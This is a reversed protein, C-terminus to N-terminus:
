KLCSERLHGGSPVLKLYHEVLFVLGCACLIEVEIAGQFSPSPVVGADLLEHAVFSSMADCSGVSCM